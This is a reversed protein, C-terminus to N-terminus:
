HNSRCCSRKHMHNIMDFVNVPGLMEFPIMQSFSVTWFMKKVHLFIVVPSATINIFHNHLRCLMPKFEVFTM